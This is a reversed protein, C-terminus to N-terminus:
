APELERLAAVRSAAVECYREDMEIGIARRGELAAAVLTTGSGVFPDLILDGPASSARV